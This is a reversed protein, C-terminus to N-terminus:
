ATMGNLLGSLQEVERMGLSRTLDAARQGLTTTADRYIQQGASAIGVLSIRADRPRAHKEVLGIKEMPNLLRTVGSPTLCVREALETRPLVGSASSALAHLVRYETFSIGHISLSHDLSRGARSSLHNLQLVLASRSDM